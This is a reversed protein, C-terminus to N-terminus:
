LKGMQELAPWLGLQDVGHSRYVGVGDAGNDLAIRAGEVM